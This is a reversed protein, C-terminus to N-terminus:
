RWCKALREQYAQQVGADADAGPPPGLGTAGRTGQTNLTLNGCGDRTAEAAAGVGEATVTYAAVVEGSGSGSNATTTELKGRFYGQPSLPQEDGFGLAVFTNAYEHRDFFHREQRGQVDALLAMADARRVRAVHDRYAPYAFGALIGIIMVVIMLEILTFGREGTRPMEHRHPQVSPPSLTKEPAM